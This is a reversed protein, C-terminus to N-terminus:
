QPELGLPAAADLPQKVCFTFINGTAVDADDINITSRSSDFAGNDYDGTMALGQSAVRDQLLDLNTGDWRTITVPMSPYTAANRTRTAATIPMPLAVVTSTWVALRARSELSNGSCASVAATDIRAWTRDTLTGGAAEGVASLTESQPRGFAGFGTLTVDCAITLSSGASGCDTASVCEDMRVRLRAPYPPDRVATGTVTRSTKAGVRDNIVIGNRGAVASEGLSFYNDVMVRDECRSALSTSVNRNTVWALALLAPFAGGLLLALLRKAKTNM